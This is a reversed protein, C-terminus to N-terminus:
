TCSYVSRQKNRPITYRIDFKLESVIFLQDLMLTNLKCELLKKQIEQNTLSNVHLNCLFRICEVRLLLHDTPSMKLYNIAIQYCESQFVKMVNFSAFETIAELAMETNENLTSKQAFKSWNEIAGARELRVLHPQQKTPLNGYANEYYPRLLNFAVCTEISYGQKGDNLQEAAELVKAIVETVFVLKNSIILHDSPSPFRMIANFTCLCPYLLMLLINQELNVKETKYLGLKMSKLILKLVRRDLYVKLDNQSFPRKLSLIKL